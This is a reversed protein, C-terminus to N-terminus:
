KADHKAGSRRYLWQIALVAFVACATFVMYAPVYSGGFRDALLGPLGSFLLGGAAYVTQFRRVTGDYQEHSALDGAWATIGVTGLSLGLGYTVMATMLLPTRGGTVCCLVLGATLLGGFLWNSAYTGIKEALVGYAFKGAMLTVGSLTVALAIAAPDFGEGRALVTIHSYGAGTFAGVCLLLPILLAWDRGTLARGHVSFSEHDVADWSGYPTLGVDAPRSRILLFSLLVLGAIVAAEAFFTEALGHREILRTLLSPIGLTALGTAASCLGVALTRKEIFWREMVMSVPIMTGFGYAMGAVAAALCYAFFSGAAGFLFFGAAALAGALGMGARLSLKKYYLGTLLMSGFSTLSRVTVIMSSQANTLGNRTLIYPQYVTFANISLGSTCFLLLACGACVAWAYHPRKGPKM